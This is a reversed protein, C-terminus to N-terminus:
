LLSSSLFTVVWSRLLHIRDPHTASEAREDAPIIQTNDRLENIVNALSLAVGTNRDRRIIQCVFPFVFAEVRLLIGAQDCCAVPTRDAIRCKEIDSVM